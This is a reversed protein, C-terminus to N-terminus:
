FLAQACQVVIFIVLIVAVIFGLAFKGMGVEWSQISPGLTVTM